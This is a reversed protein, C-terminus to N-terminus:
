TGSSPDTLWAAFNARGAPDLRSGPWEAPGARSTRRSFLRQGMRTLHIELEVLDPPPAFLEGGRIAGIALM